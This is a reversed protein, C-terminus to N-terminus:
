GNHLGITSQPPPLMNHSRLIDHALAETDRQNAAIRAAIGDAVAKAALRFVPIAIAFIVAGEILLIGGGKIDSLVQPNM